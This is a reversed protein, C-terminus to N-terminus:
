FKCFLELIGPDELYRPSCIGFRSDPCFTAAMHGRCARRDRGSCTAPPPEIKPLGGASSNCRLDPGRQNQGAAHSEWRFICTHRGPSVRFSLHEEHGDTSTEDQVFAAQLAHGGQREMLSRLGAEKVPESFSGGGVSCIVVFSWSMNRPPLIAKSVISPGMM